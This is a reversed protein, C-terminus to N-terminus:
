HQPIGSIFSVLWVGWAALSFRNFLEACRGHTRLTADLAWAFHLAMILVSVLGTTTHLDWTWGKSNLSCVFITASVDLALAIGFTWLMWRRLEPAKKRQIFHTWIVTSYLALAVVFLLELRPM